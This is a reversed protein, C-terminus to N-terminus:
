DEKAKNNGAIDKIVFQPSNNICMYIRGVYEGILGLMILIFGGVILLISVTSSWGAEMEPTIFLKRIVTILAFVFGCLALFVGSYTGIKLPKISFATFGNVWLAILRKFSYGSKGELRARQNILVVGINRTIRLILGAVYPYPNHYEVMKDVVFRRCIFYSSGKRDDKIDFMFDTTKKAVSSGLRRFINQKTEPYTAYVVDYGKDLEDLLKFVDCAPTQGDDDLTIIYDGSVNNYGAMIASHQGYNKSLNFGIAKDNEKTIDTIVSWVNDPSGDNVMIIEYDYEPRTMMTSVIEDVVNRITHESRYCPIVFSLKM